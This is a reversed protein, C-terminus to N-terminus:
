KFQNMVKILAIDDPSSPTTYDPHIIISSNIKHSEIHHTISGPEQETRDFIGFTLFVEDIGIYFSHAVSLVWENNILTGSSVITRGGCNSPYRSAM